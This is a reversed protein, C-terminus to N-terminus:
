RMTINVNTPAVQFWTNGPALRIVTGDEAKFVPPKDKTAQWTGDLRTGNRFVSCRNSGVLEIDYTRSGASDRRSAAIMKAWLVVVNRAAIQEGTLADSHVSGNNERLYVDRDADYTWEVTNAPSFPVKVYSIPVSAEVSKPGFALPAIIQTASMKRRLAEERIKTLDLYLNHPAPRSSSRTFGNRVGADESLNEIGASRIQSNVQGNAGSFAFLAHYQSVIDVDALRASRVNGVTGPAQSHFMANFRTIGGETIFEYVIDASQLGSQPRAAPSNEIKVAVIRLGAPADASPATTGTLPWVPPGPPRAVVREVNAVPWPSSVEIAVPKDKSLLLYLVLAIAVVAVVAVAILVIRKRKTDMLDILKM